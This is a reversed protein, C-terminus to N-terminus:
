LTCERWPIFGHRAFVSQASDGLLFDVFTQASPRSNHCAAVHYRIPDHCQAPIEGVVEVKDSLLADTAYVIGLSAEVREVYALAVRVSAGPLIRDALTTYLGLQELAQKAYRGAPVHDPDGMALRGRFGGLLKEVDGGQKRNGKKRAQILVLCNGSLCQRSSDVVLGRGTLYDMWRADASVYVEAGAGAEIQRALLSSAGCHVQIAGKGNQEFLRTVETLVEATSAATFVLLPKDEGNQPTCGVVIFLSGVLLSFIVKNLEHLLLIDRLWM